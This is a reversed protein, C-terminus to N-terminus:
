ALVCDPKPGRELIWDYVDTMAKGIRQWQYREEVLCRGNCGMAEREQETMSFLQRMAAAISRADPDMLIAAGAKVGEPLNCEPTM